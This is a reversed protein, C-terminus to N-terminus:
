LDERSFGRRAIWAPPGLADWDERAGQGARNGSCLGTSLRWRWKDSWGAYILYTAGLQADFGCMAGPGTSVKVTTDARIGKWAAKVRVRCYTLNVRRVGTGDPLRTIGLQDDPISLKGVFKQQVVKHDFGIVTGVFVVDSHALKATAEGPPLCSCAVAGQAGLLCALVGALFRM